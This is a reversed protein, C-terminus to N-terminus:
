KTVLQSIMFIVGLIIIATILLAVVADGRGRPRKIAIGAGREM